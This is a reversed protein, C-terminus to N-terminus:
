APSRTKGCPMWCGDCACLTQARLPNSPHMAAVGCAPGSRAAIPPCRPAGSLGTRRAVGSAGLIFGTNPENIMPDVPRLICGDYVLIRYYKESIFKVLLVGLFLGVLIFPIMSVGFLLGRVHINHWVLVQLPIKLYDLIIFFWAATGVFNEKPLRISLLFVSMVPGAANGIMTSFGGAIGFIASFWWSNPLHADKGRLDNWFMVALGLLICIGICIASFIVGVWQWASFAYPFFINM